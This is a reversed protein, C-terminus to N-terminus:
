HTPEQLHTFIDLVEHRNAISKRENKLTKILIWHLSFHNEQLLVFVNVDHIIKSYKFSTHFLNIIKMIQVFNHENLNLNLHM